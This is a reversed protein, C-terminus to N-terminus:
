KWGMREKLATIHAVHHAGHWGYICLNQDLTLDGREPHTFTRAFDAKPISRLLVDWRAHLDELLRVSVEVPTDRVDGLRAWADENYTKITPNDETLVLKTRIFANM